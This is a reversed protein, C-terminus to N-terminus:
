NAFFVELNEAGTISISYNDNWKRNYKSKKDERIKTLIGFRLLLLNLGDILKKSNSYLDVSYDNKERNKYFSGDGLYYGKLLGAACELNSSFIFNPVQKENSKGQLSIEKFFLGISKSLTIVYM